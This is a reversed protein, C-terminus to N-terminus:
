VKAGRKGEELRVVEGDKSRDGNTRKEGDLGSVRCRGGMEKRRGKRVM